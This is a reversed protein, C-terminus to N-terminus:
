SSAVAPAAVPKRSTALVLGVASLELVAGVLGLSVHSSVALTVSGIVAGLSFGAYMFSANLSLAVPAAAVGGIAILRAQQSPMFTWASVGWIVISILVPALAQAPTLWAASASLSAFACALISLAPVIVQRAGFRDTLSGGCFVGTAAAVGWVFLVASLSTGSIGAAAALYTALYGYLTYAGSAWLVTVLMAALVAPRRAVDIRQRLSAVPLAAGIDGPLGIMLGATAIAALIAVGGFTMRWGLAHGILAGLPVGLVIALSSGGSIIALARGRQQSPVLAGALATANPLYLGAALALLIRAAMLEWYDGAAVALLNALTFAGMCVILLRRRHVGATLATLVPSSIAYTLAFATILQGAQGVGVSLDGGIDPLLPAIMFAETAVAFAGFALWVLPARSPLAAASSSTQPAPSTM